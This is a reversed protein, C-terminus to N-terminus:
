LNIKATGHKANDNQQLELRIIYHQVKYHLEFSTIYAAVVFLLLIKASETPQTALSLLGFVGGLFVFLDLLMIIRKLIACKVQLNIRTRLNKM